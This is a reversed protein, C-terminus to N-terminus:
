THMLDTANLQRELLLMVTDLRSPKVKIWSGVVLTLLDVTEWLAIRLRSVSAVSMYAELFAECLRDLRDLRWAYAAEDVAEVSGDNGLEEDFASLGIQKLGTLFLAVDMAPEAQCFGDFDIFGIRGKNLLVQAPRFSQHAPGVPDAPHSSAVTELWRLMPVMAGALQPIATGLRADREKLDALEDEWRVTEGYSVGSHHLAALGIAISRTYDELEALIAPTKLHMASRILQKYTQEEDIPGQLLTKIDPLYALPRAIDVVSGKALPSQWLAQMAHYANLGKEGAYVKAVVRQPWDSAREHYAPYDLHYLITCRSGRKYRMVQPTCARLSFDENVPLFAHLCWQILLRAEEPDMLHPLAPLDAAAPQVQLELRLGPLYCRWGINGFAVYSPPSPPEPLGPPSVIGFLEIVQSQRWQPGDITLRYTGSWCASGSKLRLRRIECERISLEGSVFEAVEQELAHRVHDPQMALYLWPPLPLTAFQRLNDLLPSHIRRESRKIEVAM